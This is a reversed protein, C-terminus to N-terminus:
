PHTSQFRFVRISNSRVYPRVRVPAHISVYVGNGGKGSTMTAGERTRPNFGLNSIAMFDRM